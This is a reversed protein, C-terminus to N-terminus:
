GGLLNNIADIVPNVVPDGPTTVPPKPVPGTTPTTPPPGSPRTTTTGGGGGGGSTTPTSGGPPPAASQTSGLTAPGFTARGLAAQVTTSLRPADTVAQDLAVLGWAAGDNRFSFVSSWRSTFDGRVGTLAIAAGVLTEGPQRAQDILDPQFAPQDALAPLVQKFFGVSRGSGSALNSSFGDSDQQLEQSLDIALGLFRNDWPDTADLALPSPRGPLVGLVAITAQRFAPVALTRGTTKLMAEGAYAAATISPDRSVRAAGDRITVESGGAALTLSGQDRQVLVDGALLTPAAALRVESGARGARPGRLELTARGPLAMSATGGTVKVRDGTHVTLSGTVAEAAHGARTVTVKAGRAVTLRAQGFPVGSRSCAALMLAAVTM